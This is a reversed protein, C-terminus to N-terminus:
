DFYSSNAALKASDLNSCRLYVQLTKVDEWGGLDAITKLSFQGSLYLNTAGSRRATHMTVLSSKPLLSGDQEVMDNLGAAALAMKVQRNAQQNTGWGFNFNYKQLLEAAKSRVPVMAQNNTKISRYQLFSRGNMEQINEPGIAQLDSFRLMFYYAILWRDLERQLHPQQFLDANELVAIDQENLFIKDSKKSRPRSFGKQQHITNQHIGRELGMNMLRKIIKIHKNIGPLQCNGESALYGVFAHYFAMDMAQMSPAPKGHFTEYGRLRTLSSRYNKLTGSTIPLTGAEGEKIIQELFETISSHCEKKFLTDWSHGDLFHREIDLRLRTIKANYRKALPHISKVQHRKDDWYEPLIKIGTSVYRKKSNDSFYIKIDCTGDKKPAYTWLVNRFNM